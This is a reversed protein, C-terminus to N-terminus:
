KGVCVVHGQTRFYLRGESVAPTTMCVEALPNTALLEFKPGAALVHIDGEESTYYVKGDAAVPSATFGTSGDGLRQKIKIEGSAADYATLVGNDRAAYLLGRYVLPTQMYSGRRDYSWPIHESTAADGAPTIDGTASTRIAYIPAKAGHANTIYVFDNWVVPTPVPIDGGGVLKWIEKGTNLDYGGIHKYGNVIVQARDANVHVTPTGWTPVENRPTRWIESGSEIDFAALFSDKQVDCQVIVKNGHIVPSSGFGWQAEPVVYYGADLQGLDKKWLQKGNLDFCFLGESGLFTVLHKGDVAPTSNAHTAKMHRKIRPVSELAVHNWLIEGSNKDLALIRWIHKSEDEVPEIAGYLGVRLGDNGAGSEATVVYVRDNWIVPSAHSVGPIRTKWKINKGSAADWESPTPFGDAVGSAGPGRFMPWNVGKRDDAFGYSCLVAACIAARFQTHLLMM